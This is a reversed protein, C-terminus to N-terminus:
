PTPLGNSSTQLPHRAVKDGLPTNDTWWAFEEKSCTRAGVDRGLRAIWEHPQGDWITFGEGTVTGIEVLGADVLEVVAGVIRERRIQGDTSMGLQRALGDIALLPVWDDLGSVLVAHALASIM